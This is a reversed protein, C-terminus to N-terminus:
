LSEEKPNSPSGDALGKPQGWFRKQSGWGWYKVNPDQWADELHLTAILIRQALDM